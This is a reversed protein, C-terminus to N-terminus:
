PGARRHGRDPGGRLLRFATQRDKVRLKRLVSSVHVRVTTPSVFLRGAVEETTLGNSLLDMVEWERTSLKAAAASGRSFRRRPPARFEDLIRTMLTRPMAAEGALVGRLTAALRSSEASKLLYGTAGAKLSDFLDEDDESATLMVIATEPSARSVMRAAQIGSGPMRIDLLVVDPRHHAVLEAAETATAAEAIVECGDDELARRVSDRTPAHDDALLVRVATTDSV